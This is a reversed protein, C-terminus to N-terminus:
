RGEACARVYAQREAECHSWGAGTQLCQQWVPVSLVECRDRYVQDIVLSGLFAILACVALVALLPYLRSQM